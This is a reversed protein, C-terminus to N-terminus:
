LPIEGTKKGVRKLARVVDVRVVNGAEVRRALEDDGLARQVRRAVVKPAHRPLRARPGDDHEGSADFLNREKSGRKRKKKNQRTVTPGAAMVISPEENRTRTRREDTPLMFRFQVKIERHLTSFLAVPVPRVVRLWDVVAIDLHASFSEEMLRDNQARREVKTAVEESGRSQKQDQIRQIM